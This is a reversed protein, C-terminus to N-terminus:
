VPWISPSYPLEVAAATLSNWRRLPKVTSPTAPGRGHDGGRRARRSRRSDPRRHTERFKRLRDGGRVDAHDSRDGSRPISDRQQFQGSHYRGRFFCFGTSFRSETYYLIRATDCTVSLGGGSREPSLGRGKPVRGLSGAGCPPPDEASRAKRRGDSLRQPRWPQRFVRRFREEVM